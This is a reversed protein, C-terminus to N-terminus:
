GKLASNVRAVVYSRTNWWGYHDYYFRLYPVRKTRCERRVRQNECNESMLEVVLAEGGDKKFTFVARTGKSQTECSVGYAAFQEHFIGTFYELWTKGSNFQNEESPMSDGYSVPLDTNGVAGSTQAAPSQRTPQATTSQAAKRVENLLDNAAEEASKGFLKSLLGM